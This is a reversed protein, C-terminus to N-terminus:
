SSKNYIHAMRAMGLLFDQARGSGPAEQLPEPGNVRRVPPPSDPVTKLHRNSDRYRDKELIRLSIRLYPTM